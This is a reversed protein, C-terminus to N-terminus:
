GPGSTVGPGKGGRHFNNHIYMPAYGVAIFIAPFFLSLPNMGLLGPLGMLAGPICGIAAHWLAFTRSEYRNSRAFFFILAVNVVLLPWSAAGLFIYLGAGFDFDAALAVSPLIALLLARLKLM